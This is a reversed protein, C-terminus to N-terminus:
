LSKNTRRSLILAPPFSALSNNNYPYHYIAKVRAILSSLVIINLLPKNSYHRLIIDCEFGALIVRRTYQMTQKSHVHNERVLVYNKVFRIYLSASSQARRSATTSVPYTDHIYSLFFFRINIVFNHKNM